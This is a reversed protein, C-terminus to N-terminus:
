VRVAPLAPSFSEMIEPKMHFGTRVDHQMNDLDGKSIPRVFDGTGVIREIQLQPGVGAKPDLFARDVFAHAPERWVPLVAAVHVAVEVERSMIPRQLCDVHELVM